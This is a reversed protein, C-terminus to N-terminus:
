TLWVLHFDVHDYEIVLVSFMHDLCNYETDAGAQLVLIDSILKCTFALLWLRMYM